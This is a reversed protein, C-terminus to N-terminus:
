PTSIRVVEDNVADVMWLNGDDDFEIGMLAGEDMGTDVYDLLNGDKDFAFIRGSRNDTTFIMDNWLAMGSPRGMSETAEGDVLTWCDGGTYEVQRSIGDYNPSINSGENGSRADHVAIRNNGTDAVYVYDEDHDYVLHSPVDERWRMEGEVHREIEGDSHDAGGPGHDDNFYYRTLSDHYGDFVWFTRDEEWAIGMGNPSNHLMDLHGSHGGDYIDLDDTWLTPGMFDEPTGGPGQTLDDTEHISAWTGDEAFALASPQALFHSSGGTNGRYLSDQDDTGADLLITTSNDDRNVIWLEDRRDPHFELDRPVNLGDGDDAMVEMVLESIDHTGGGLISVGDDDDDDGTGGTPCGAVLASLGLVLLLNPRVLLKFDTM